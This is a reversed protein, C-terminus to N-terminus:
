SSAAAALTLPELCTTRSMSRRVHARLSDVDFGLANCVNVFSFPARADDSFIWEETESVLRRRERNKRTCIRLADELIALMLRREPSMGPTPHFRAPLVADPGFLLEDLTEMHFRRHLGGAVRKHSKREPGHDRTRLNSFFMPRGIVADCGLQAGLDIGGSLSPLM